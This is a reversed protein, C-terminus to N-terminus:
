EALEADIDALLARISSLAETAQDTAELLKLAQHILTRAHLLKDRDWTGGLAGRELKRVDPKRWEKKDAPVFGGM